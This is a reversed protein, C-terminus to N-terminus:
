STAATATRSKGEVPNGKSKWAEMGGEFRHVNQFGAQDLKRAAKESADCEPGSCYVVITESKDDAAAEVKAVFNDDSVPINRSGPIHGKQFREPELANIVLPDQENRMKKFQDITLTRM